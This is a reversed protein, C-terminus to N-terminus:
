PEPLANIWSRVLEVADADILDVGLPPMPKLEDDDSEGSLAMFLVSTEPSRPVVRIGHAQGSGQTPVSVINEFAVSHELSLVSMGQESGNHCHACNGHLYGLVERTQADAHAVADPERPVPHAFIGADALAELQSGKKGTRPGNLRLEDFGIIVTDNSEHCTRCDFGSPIHHRLGSGSAQKVFVAVSNALSILTADSGDKNWKYAQYEYGNDTRRIVRTEVREPEGGDYAFTKFFLTGPPFDWAGRESNDIRKGEPLLLWREKDSGNSWLPLTPEYRVVRDIPETRADDKFLGTESLLPPFPGLPQEVLPKTAPPPASPPAGRATRPIVRFIGAMAGSLKHAECSGFSTAYLFGDPGRAAGTLGVLNGIHEDRVVKGEDDISLARVFGVCLDSFVLSDDLFGEYPDLENPEYVTGIWSCRQSTARADDDEATYRHDSSHPWSALPDTLESCDRKDPDCAGDVNSWGFNLGPRDVLNVEENVNGVEAVFLRNRHDLAGRWPNRLGWAYIDPGSSLAPDGAFPNDPHPDYGASGEGRRPIIRLVKGLNTQLDQANSRITKEGALVWMSHEDDDFFGIGNMNHWASTTDPEGLEMVLARSDAIDYHEADFEYRVLASLNRRVCHTAYLYHNDEWEPDLVVSTMGCDNDSLVDPVLMEGQLVLEGDDFRYHAIRGAKEWILAGHDAPMFLIGTLERHVSREGDETLPTVRQFSVGVVPLHSPLDDYDGCALGLCALAAVVGLNIGSTRM